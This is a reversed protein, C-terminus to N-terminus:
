ENDGSAEMSENNCGMWESLIEDSEITEGIPTIFKGTSEEKDLVIMRLDDYNDVRTYWHAASVEPYKEANQQSEERTNGQILIFHYM